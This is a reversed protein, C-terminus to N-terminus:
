YHRDEPKECKKIWVPYENGIFIKRHIKKSKLFNITKNLTKIVGNDKLSGMGRKILILSNIFRAYNRKGLIYFLFGPKFEEILDSETEIKKFNRENPDFNGSSKKDSRKIEM